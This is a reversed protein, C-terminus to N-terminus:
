AICWPGKLIVNIVEQTLIQINEARGVEVVHKYVAHILFFM